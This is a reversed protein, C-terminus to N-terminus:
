NDPDEDYTHIKKKAAKPHQKRALNAEKEKQSFTDDIDIVESEPNYLITKSNKIQPNPKPMDELSEFMTNQNGTMIDVIPSKPKNFM